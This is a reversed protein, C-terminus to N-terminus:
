SDSRLYQRLLIVFVWVWGFMSVHIIFLSPEFGSFFAFLACVWMGLITMAMGTEMENKNGQGALAKIGAITIFINLSFVIAGIALDVWGHQEGHYYTPALVLYIMIAVSLAAMLVDMSTKMGKSKM